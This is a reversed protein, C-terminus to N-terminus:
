KKVGTVIIDGYIDRARHLAGYRTPFPTVGASSRNVIASLLPNMGGLVGRLNEGLVGFSRPIWTRRRQATIIQIHELPALAELIRNRFHAEDYIRQFFYIKQDGTKRAAGAFGVRKQEVYSMGFPVSLALLGGPKLVRVLEGLAVSDGNEGEIHELVSMSYVVDFSADKFRLQRADELCFDVKGRARAALAQWMPKYEDINLESIDTLTLQAPHRVGLYLGLLKPSGVDLVRASVGAPMAALHGAIARDFWYYEPFRTYSNVPQMIKGATNKAGLLLGNAFLNSIGARLGFFYYTLERHPFLRMEGGGIGIIRAWRETQLV